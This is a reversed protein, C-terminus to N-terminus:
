HTYFARHQNRSNGGVAYVFWRRALIRSSTFHRAVRRRASTWFSDTYYSSRFAIENHHLMWIAIQLRRIGFSVEVCDWNPAFCTTLVSFNQPRSMWVISATQTAQSTIFSASILYSDRCIFILHTTKTSSIGEDDDFSMNYGDDPIVCCYVVIAVEPPNCCTLKSDRYHFQSKSGINRWM